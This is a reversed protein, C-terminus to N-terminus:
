PGMRGRSVVGPYHSRRRIAEDSARPSGTVASGWPVSEPDLLSPHGDSFEPHDESPSRFGSDRAGQSGVRRLRGPCGVQLTERRPYEPFKTAPHPRFPFSSKSHPYQSPSSKMSLRAPQFQFAVAERRGESREAASRRDSAKPSPLKARLSGKQLSNPMLM